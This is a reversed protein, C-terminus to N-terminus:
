SAPLRLVRKALVNRLVENAGGSITYARAYLYSDKWRRAWGEAVEHAPDRVYDLAAQHVAINLESFAIKTMAAGGDPQPTTEGLALVASIDACLEGALLALDETPEVTLLAALRDMEARLSIINRGTVQREVALLDMAVRWGSGVGGVLAQSDLYVSDLFVENFDADGTIERLPRVTIGLADMPVLFASIGRHREARTGTRALLFGWDAIHAYTSWVKQGTVEWGDGAPVATTRLSALDSGAEPESFLQAWCATGNRIPPLHRQQQESTGFAMLAPGVLNIGVDSLSLPMAAAALVETVEAAEDADLGAGGWQAPWQLTALGSAHFRECWDKWEPYAAADPPTRAGPPVGVPPPNAEVWSLAREV